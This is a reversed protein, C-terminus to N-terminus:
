PAEPHKLSRILTAAEDLAAAMAEGVSDAGCRIIESAAEEAREAARELADNEAARIAAAVSQFRPCEASACGCVFTLAQAREEPTM